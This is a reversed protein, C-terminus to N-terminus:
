SRDSWDWGAQQFISRLTSTPFNRKPHPVVVFGSGDPKRFVHHSGKSRVLEWGEHKLRQIIERSTM